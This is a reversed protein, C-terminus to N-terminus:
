WDKIVISSPCDKELVLFVVAANLLVKAEALGETTYPNITVSYSTGDANTVIKQLTKTSSINKGDKNYACVFTDQESLAHVKKYESYQLASLALVVVSAIATVVVPGMIHRQRKTSDLDNVM